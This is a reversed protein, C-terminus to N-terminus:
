VASSIIRDYLAAEATDQLRSNHWLLTFDGNYKRCTDVIQMVRRFADEGHGLGMYAKDIITCEMVLLPRERISLAKRHILDFTTFEQCIGARFGIHDAFSLSTDYDIGANSLNTLTHAANWRLYHQRSGWAEQAIGEMACIRKFVDFERKIQEESLYTHFSAHLGIEHGRKRIRRLIARIDKQFPSYDGDKRSDSHGCILYFASTLGHRESINMIHAFTNYPDADINGARIKMWEFFQQVIGHLSKRQVVDHYCTRLIGRFSMYRYLFPADMDHSPRVTFKRPKRKLWPWLMRMCKWLVEVYENVIPRELFGEQFALSASAPFRDYLDAEGKVIEEYRTLMFFCSGFIDIDIRIREDSIRVFDDDETQAGYVVPISKEFNEFRYKSTETHWARLPQAPLSRFTLWDANPTAFLVESVILESENGCSICIDRRDATVITYELGLVQAIVVDIAYEREPVYGKPTEIALKM